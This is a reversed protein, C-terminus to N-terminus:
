GVKFLAAANCGGFGSATKLFYESTPAVEDQIINMKRSVGHHEYGLSVALRKRKMAELGLLTEIVGAAGLTHGFYGKMSNVPVDSLGSREFAISEMEDNFSTGTGHASLYGVQNASVSAGNL